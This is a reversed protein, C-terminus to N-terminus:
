VYGPGPSGQDENNGEPNGEFTNYINTVNRSSSNGPSQEYEPEEQYINKYAQTYNPDPETPAQGGQNIHDEWVKVKNPDVAGTIGMMNMQQDMPPIMSNMQNQYALMNENSSKQFNLINQNTEAIITNQIEELSQVSPSNNEGTSGTEVIPADLYGNNYSAYEM